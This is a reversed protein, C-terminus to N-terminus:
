KRYVSLGNGDMELTELTDGVNLRVQTRHPVNAWFDQAAVAYNAGNSKVSVYPVKDIMAQAAAGGNTPPKYATWAGWSRAGAASCSERRYEFPPNTSPANDAITQVQAYRHAAGFVADYIHGQVNLTPGEFAYGSPDYNAKGLYEANVYKNRNNLHADFLLRNPNASIQGFSDWNILGITEWLPWFCASEYVRPSYLMKDTQKVVGLSTYGRYNDVFSNEEVHYWNFGIIKSAPNVKKILKYGSIQGLIICATSDNEKNLDQGMPAAYFPNKYGAGASWVSWIQNVSQNGAEAWPNEGNGPAMTLKQGFAAAHMAPRPFQSAQGNLKVGFADLQLKHGDPNLADFSCDIRYWFCLEINPKLKKLAYGLVAINRFTNPNGYDIRDEIDLILLEMAVFQGALESVQAASLDEWKGAGWFGSNVTQFKKGNQPVKGNARWMNIGKNKGFSDVAPFDLEIAFKKNALTINPMRNGNSPLAHMSNNSDGLGRLSDFRTIKTLAM